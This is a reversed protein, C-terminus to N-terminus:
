EARNASNQASKALVGATTKAPIVLPNMPGPGAWVATPAIHSTIKRQIKIL